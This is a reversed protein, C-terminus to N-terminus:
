KKPKRGRTGKATGLGQPNTNGLNQGNNQTNARNTNGSNLGRGTQSQPNVQSTGTPRGRGRKPTGSSPQNIQQQQTNTRQARGSSQNRQQPQVNQQNIQQPQTNARQAGGSSQNRQQTQVNQQKIQQQTNTRQAGGSSQNIQQTQVNQQTNTRQAGGSPQNIQQPQANTTQTRGSTQRIQQPQANVTQAGGSPQNIQQPQVNQQRIQQPESVGASGAGSSPAGMTQPEVVTEVTQPQASTRVSGADSSPAGMTPQEVVTEVTQPQASTRVSGGDSSPAGMTPQEVVTEVTQPQASARVSGADSSPAGMTPQEVVTEVTQPQANGGGLANVIAENKGLDADPTRMEGILGMMTNMTLAAQDGDMGNRKFRDVREKEFKVQDNFDTPCEEEMKMLAFTQDDSLDYAEQVKMARAIKDSDSFGHLQFAMMKNKKEEIYDSYKLSSDITGSEQGAKFDTYRFQKRALQDFRASNRYKREARLRQIKSYNTSGYRLKEINGKAKKIGKAGKIALKTGKDIAKGTLHGAAAGTAVGTALGKAVGALGEGKALAAGMKAAAVAGGVAAGAFAKAAFRGAKLAAIGAIKLPKRASKMGGGHVFRNKIGNRLGNKARGEDKLRAIEANIDDNYERHTRANTRGNPTNGNQSDGIQPNAGQTSEEIAQTQAGGQNDGEHAEGNGIAEVDNGEGASTDDRLEAEAEGIEEATIASMGAADGINAAPIEPPNVGSMNERVANEIESENISDSDGDKDDDDDDKDDDAGNNLADHAEAEINGTNRSINNLDANAQNRANREDGTEEEEGSGDMLSDQSQAQLGAATGGAIAATGMTEANAGAGLANMGGAGDRLANAGADAGAGAGVGPGPGGPGTGGGAGDLFSSGDDVGRTDSALRPPKSEDGGGSSNGGGNGKFLSKANSALSAVHSATHALDGLGEGPKPASGAKDLGFIKRFIKEFNLLCAYVVLMYIINDELQQASTVLITYLLLHVPQTLCNYIYEKLWFQFGQASGDGIKDLPYSFAVIPSIMTLFGITISRKVYIITFMVTYVVIMYYVIVQGFDWQGALWRCKGIDWNSVYSRISGEVEESGKGNDIENEIKEKTLKKTVGIDNSTYDNPYAEFDDWVAQMSGYYEDDYGGGSNKDALFNGTSFKGNSGYETFTAWYGGTSDNLLDCIAKSIKVSGAMIYNMLFLLCFGVLWDKLMDKYKAKSSGTSSLVIRIGVYILVLLSAVIAFMRLTKYWTAVVPQLLYVTGKQEDESFGSTDQFYDIDFLPIDGSFVTVPTYQLRPVNARVSSGYVGIDAAPKGNGLDGVFDDEPLLIDQLIDLVGDGPALIIMILIDQITKALSSLANEVGEKIDATIGSHVKFSTACSFNFVIIITLISIILKEVFSKKKVM